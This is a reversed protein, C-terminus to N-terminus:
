KKPLARALSALAESFLEELGATKLEERL